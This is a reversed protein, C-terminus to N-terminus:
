DSHQNQQIVSSLTPPAVVTQKAVNILMPEVDVMTPKKDFENIITPANILTWSMHLIAVLYWNWQLFEGKGSSAEQIKRYIFSIRLLVLLPLIDVIGFHEWVLLNCIRLHLMSGKDPKKKISILKIWMKSANGISVVWGCHIYFSDRNHIRFSVQTSFANLIHCLTINQVWLQM